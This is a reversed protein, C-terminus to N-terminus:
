RLAAAALSVNGDTTVSAAAWTVTLTQGVEAANFTLTYTVSYLNTDARSFSADSYDPASHDSLSATLKGNSRYGGVYILLTRPTTAATVTIQFGDAVGPRWMGTPTGAETPTLVGDEWAFSTPNNAYGTATNGSLTKYYSIQSTNNAKYDEDGGIPFGFHAWDLTGESTLDVLALTAAGSGSLHGTVSPALDASSSLDALPAGDTAALDTAGGTAALDGCGSCGLDVTAGYRSSLAAFDHCGSALTLLPLMAWTSSM